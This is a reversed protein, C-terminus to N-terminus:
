FYQDLCINRQVMGILVIVALSNGLLDRQFKELFNLNTAVESSALVPQKDPNLRQEATQTLIDDIKPINPWDIGGVALGAEIIGPYEAPIEAGGWLYTEGIVMAPVGLRDDPIGWAGIFEQYIVQGMPTAVNVGIIQIQDGFEAKIGPLVNTLVEHCHPCTPSFFYIARVMAEEATATQPTFFSLSLILITLIIVKSKM